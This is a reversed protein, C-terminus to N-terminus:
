RKCFPCTAREAAQHCPVWSPLLMSSLVLAFRVHPLPNLYPSDLCHKQLHAWLM